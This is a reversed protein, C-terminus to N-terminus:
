DLDLLDIRGELLIVGEYATYFAALALLTRLGASLLASEVPLRRVAGQFVTTLRGPM